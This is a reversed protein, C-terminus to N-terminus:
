KVGRVVQLISTETDWQKTGADYLAARIDFRQNALRKMEDVETQSVPREPLQLLSDINELTQQRDADIMAHAMEPSYAPDDPTLPVVVYGTSVDHFGYAELNRPLEMENQAYAGIANQKVTDRFFAATREWIEREFDTEAALCPATQHISRRVCLVLCVGGPRLVRYQEKYFPDPPIHEAVTNSITVDFSDDPFPLATADGELFRAQPVQKQAFAIFNSDRDIGTIHQHPYWRSLSEALAGPGCGIELVDSRDDIRFLAEYQRRFPDSFRLRRSFYLTGITQIYTSWLTNM